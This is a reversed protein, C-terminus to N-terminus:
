HSVCQISVRTLGDGATAVFHFRRRARTEGRRGWAVPEGDTTAGSGDRRRVGDVCAGPTTLDTAFGNAFGHTKQSIEPSIRLLDVTNRGITRSRDQKRPFAPM